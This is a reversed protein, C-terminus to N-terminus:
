IPEIAKKTRQSFSADIIRGRFDMELIEQLAELDNESYDGTLQTLRFFQDSM